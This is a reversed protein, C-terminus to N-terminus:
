HLLVSAAFRFGNSNRAAYSVTAHGGPISVPPADVPADIAM